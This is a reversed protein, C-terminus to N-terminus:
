ETQIPQHRIHRPRELGVLPLLNDRDTSSAWSRFHTHLLEHPLQVDM